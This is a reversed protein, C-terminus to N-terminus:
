QFRRRTLQHLKEIHFCLLPHSATYLPVENILVRNISIERYNRIWICLFIIIRQENHM